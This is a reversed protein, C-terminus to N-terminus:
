SLSEKKSEIQLFEKRLDFDYIYLVIEDNSLGRKKLEVILTNLLSHVLVSHKM